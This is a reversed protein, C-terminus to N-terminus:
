SVHLRDDLIDAITTGKIPGFTRAYLDESYSTPLPEGEIIHFPRQGESGREARLFLTTDSHHDYFHRSLEFLHTVFVVTIGAANMARIIETAITSAERENTAAFSENCLLLCHPRIQKAIGSMRKLEEDFKGSTMTADEERTFHTFVGEVIGASFSEAAVAMGAQMMLQALGVSRLFTSKGGQNAGTLIVLPTGDAHLDNGQVAGGTHLALCPDYLGHASRFATGFPHPEPLCDPEDRAVLLEHLNLCGLYFGLEARLAAFFSGIHDASQALANAALSVVRGRLGSLAEHGAQDERPITRSFSPPKVIPHRLFNGRARPARLVYGIGQSGEGLQASALVGDRFRLRRLHEAVEEFYDDDLEHQLTAFFRTFGESSFQGAHDEALKRVRRLVTVFMELEKISANLLPEGSQSNIGLGRWSKKKEAVALVALEYLERVVAPERLCDTYVAQRYHIEEVTRLGSLVATRVSDSIVQDGNAMARWLTLLELDQILDQEGPQDARVVQFDRDPFMLLAKM